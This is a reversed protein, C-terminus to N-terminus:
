REAPVLADLAKAKLAAETAAIPALTLANVGALVGAAVFGFTGLVITTRAIPNRPLKM